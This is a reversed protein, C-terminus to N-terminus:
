YAARIPRRLSGYPVWECSFSVYDGYRPHVSRIRAVKDYAACHTDAIAVVERYSLHAVSAWAMIGGTDNGKFPPVHAQAAPAALPLMALVLAALGIAHANIRRFAPRFATM